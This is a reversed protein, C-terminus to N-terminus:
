ESQPVQELMVAENAEMEEPLVKDATLFWEPNGHCADCSETQPTNLQINHPTAYVWTPMADFNTLLNEGYFEFSTPAIPVHRLTVYKYPRQEGMRPNLGIAFGMQSADIEYFPIGEDSQQVHCNYCSKYAISHCVQCSLNEGHMAHYPNSGGELVDTHCDECRPTREGDYRHTGEVGVGHMEAGTHCDVCAMRGSRLHVDAPYGENRGTYEDKVRSGHCGTCNRTMSPTERFAHGDILGGGVSAPQSVHCQGCSAHCNICHNEMVESIVDTQQPDWRALLATDYGALTSHLSAQQVPVHQYHCEACISSEMDSPDLVLGQHAAEKDDVNSGGHCDACSLRGHASYQEATGWLDQLADASILVKEWAELPPV